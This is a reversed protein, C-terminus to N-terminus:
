EATPCPAETGFAPVAGLRLLLRYLQRPTWAWGRVGLVHKVCSVCYIPTLRQFLHRRHSRFHLFKSGKARCSAIVRDIQEGTLIAVEARRSLPDYLIWRGNSYGFCFCHRWGKDTFAHYWSKPPEFEGFGVWWEDVLNM